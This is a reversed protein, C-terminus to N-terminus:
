LNPVELILHRGAIGTIFVSLTTGPLLMGPSASDMVSLTGEWSKGAYNIRFDLIKGDRRCGLYDAQQITGKLESPPCDPVDQEAGVNSSNKAPGEPFSKTMGNRAHKLKRQLAANRNMLQELANRNERDTNGLRQIVERLNATEEAIRQPFLAVRERLEALESREALDLEDESRPPSWEVFADFKQFDKLRLKAFEAEYAAHEEVRFIRCVYGRDGAFIAAIRFPLKRNGFVSLECGPFRHSQGARWIPNTFRTLVEELRARDTGRLAELKGQAQPSLWLTKRGAQEMETLTFALPSLTVNTGDVELLSHFYAREEEQFGPILKCFRDEPMVGEKRLAALAPRARQFLHLDFGVPLPPLEILAESFEFVYVTKVRFLMGIVTLFPVVGKFGGTPNLVVGGGHRRQPDDVYRLVVQLFRTLGAERLRKADRVQLGEIREVTTRVGRWVQQITRSLMEACAHGDATDTALLVVEDGEAVRLRELSNLEASAAIRGDMTTLDYRTLRDAIERNLESIDDGWDSAQKHFRGLEPCGAAISTGTTCVITRSM